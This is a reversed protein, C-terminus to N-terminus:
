ILNPFSVQYKLEKFMAAMWCAFRHYSESCTCGALFSLQSLDAISNGKLDLSTLSHFDGHIDVFGAMNEVSNFSLNLRRLRKLDRLGEVTVIMNNSLNLDLLTPIMEIRSLDLVALARLQSLLSRDALSSIRNSHLNLSTIATCSTAPGLRHM